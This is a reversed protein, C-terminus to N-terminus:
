GAGSVGQDPQGPGVDLALRGPDGEGDEPPVGPVDNELADAPFGEYGLTAPHHCPHRQARAGEDRPRRDRVRDRSRTLLGALAREVPHTRDQAIATPDRSKVRAHAEPPGLSLALLGEASRLRGM